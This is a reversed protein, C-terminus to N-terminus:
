GASCPSEDPALKTARDFDALALAYEGRAQRARGRGARASVNDPALALARSFPEIADEFSGEILAMNGLMTFNAAADSDDAISAMAEQRSKRRAKKRRHEAAEAIPVVKRDPRLPKKM